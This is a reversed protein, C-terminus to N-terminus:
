GEVESNNKNALQGCAADIDKGRSRRVKANVGHNRLYQLFADRTDKGTRSLSVGDVKNYEILNVYAPVQKCLSVLNAADELSDNFGNLLIYEFTIKNGTQEYFYNMAGVLEEIPNTKNIDMIRNRQEDTPAHLSLALNFRKGEDALRKIGKAIGVTSVTIRRPSMGLGEPSTIKDIAELVNKYNLLPEGMGMFVINTLGRGRTEESIRNLKVVQDYIEAPDLNREGKLQGTACFACSLVCGVQSSVCATNRERDPILVGEVMKGDSLKFGLKVTGDRSDQRIEQEVPKFEFVAKLKERLDKSLNTMGDFDKAGKKWIWEHIQRARFSKEGLDAIAEAIQGESLKRIDRKTM